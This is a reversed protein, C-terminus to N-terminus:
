NRPFNAGTIQILEDPYNPRFKEIYVLIFNNRSIGNPVFVNGLSNSVFTPFTIKTLCNLILEGHFNEKTCM